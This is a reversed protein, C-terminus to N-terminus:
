RGQPLEFWRLREVHGEGAGVAERLIQRAEERLLTTQRGTGSSETSTATTGGRL